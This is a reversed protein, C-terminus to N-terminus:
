GPSELRLHRDRRTRHGGPLVTRRNRGRGHRRHGRHEYRGVPGGPSGAADADADAPTIAADAGSHNPTASVTATAVASAVGVSYTTLDAAFGIIDRPSVTLASLTADTGPMNFAYVKDNIEDAIWMTRRDSWLGTPTSVGAAMLTAFDRSAIRSGDAMSYAFITTQAQFVVWMTVGNSWIGRPSFTSHLAIDADPQRTGGDLLYAYLKSDDFDAVWITTGDSWSGTPTNNDAHLDLDLSAQRAGDSVQYAYLKDDRSDSIWVTVGNSWAGTPNGNDTHLDFGNDTDQNGDRNYSYVFTDVLDLTWIKTANGWIAWPTENGAARLGDLDDQAKWGYTDTVGQGIVVQYSNVTTTDEATVVIIVTNVGAALTVQHGADSSADAPSIVATAGSHNPTASITVQTVTSAVGVSYKVRNAAFGIIDRPSVTLASLTADDSASVASGKVAIEASHSSPIWTTGSDDSFVSNEAIDWGASADEDVNNSATRQLNAEGSTMLFAVFYSTSASLTTASAPTFSQEGATSSDGTLDVVETGPEDDATSTYLAFAPTGTSDGSINVVIETLTYGGPNSGTEFQQARARSTSTASSGSFDAQGINSILTGPTQAQAPAPLAAGLVMALVALVALIIAARTRATAGMRRGGRNPERSDSPMNLEGMNQAAETKDDRETADSDVGHTGADSILKCSDM